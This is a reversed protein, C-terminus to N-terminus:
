RLVGQHFCGLLTGCLEFLFAFGDIELFQQPHLRVTARGVDAVHLAFVPRSPQSGFVTAHHWEVGEAFEVLGLAAIDPEREILGTGEGAEGADPGVPRGNPLDLFTLRGVVDEREERRLRVGLDAGDVGLRHRYDQRRRFFDLGPHRGTRVLGQFQLPRKWASREPDDGAADGAQALL